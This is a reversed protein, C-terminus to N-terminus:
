KQAGTAAAPPVAAVGAEATAHGPAGIHSELSFGRPFKEALDKIAKVTQEDGAVGDVRVSQETIQISGSKLMQLITLSHFVAKAWGEPAGELIRTQDVIELGSFLAQAHDKVERRSNEDPMPGTMNIRNGKLSARWVFSQHPASIHVHKIAVGTPTTKIFQQVEEYVADNGAVGELSVSGDDVIAAGTQLYSLAKLAFSVGGIKVNAKANSGTIKIRDTLDSSPFNAKILGLITKHDEETPMQGKLKLHDADKIVRLAFNAPAEQESVDAIEVVMGNRPALTDQQARLHDVTFFIANLVFASGLCAYALLAGRRKGAKEGAMGPVGM